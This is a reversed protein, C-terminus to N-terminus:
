VGKMEATLGSLLSAVRVEDLEADLIWAALLVQCCCHAAILPRVSLSLCVVCSLVPLQAQM